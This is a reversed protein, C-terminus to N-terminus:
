DAAPTMSLFNKWCEDNDDHKWRMCFCFTEPDEVHVFTKMVLPDDTQTAGEKLRSFVRDKCQADLVKVFVEVKYRNGISRNQEVSGPIMNVIPVDYSLGDYFGDMERSLALRNNTDRDYKAFERKHDRSQKRSVLHCSEANGYPLFYREHEIRQYRFEDTSADLISVSSTLSISSMTDQPSESEQPDYHILYIRKLETQVGEVQAVSTTVEQGNLPSGLTVPEEQLANDFRLANEKTEFLIHICLTKDEYWLASDKDGTRRAPDYYGLYTGALRYLKLSAFHKRLQEVDCSPLGIPPEKGLAQYKTYIKGLLEDKERRLRLNKAKEPDTSGGQRWDTQRNEAAEAAKRRKESLTPERINVERCQATTATHVNQTGLARDGALARSEQNVAKLQDKSFCCGMTPSRFPKRTYEDVCVLRHAKVAAFREFIMHLTDTKYCLHLGEGVNGEAAQIRLIDGVPMDLQTLSRDKVLETVNSVCYINIVMGSPEVIPVASVRREVLTHLVRILPMDEPVTILGTYTGIGLDFIPQDFLRRQERFTSVLFELIGSHTIVSLVSNQIPDLVPLRHLRHDRLAKCAEYLSDEPTLSIMRDQQASMSLSRPIARWSAISHEALENMPSGRIYFHRLINVFDTATFMGVFQGQDADWLPVSKIDHEVLAFFALNIPIKVDFVVVKGSNKILDYCQHSQLFKRIVEKAEKVIDFSSPGSLDLAMPPPFEPNLGFSLHSSSSSPPQGTGGSGPASGGSTDGMLDDQIPVSIRPLISHGSGPPSVHNGVGGGGDATMEADNSAAAREAYFADDMATPQQENGMAGGYYGDHSM